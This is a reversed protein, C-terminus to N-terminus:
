AAVLAGLGRLDGRLLDREVSRLDAGSQVARTFDRATRPPGVYVAGVIVGQRLIIRWWAADDPLATYEEDGPEAVVRGYSRLDIGDCKLQMVIRPSQYPVPEGMIAAVATAAQAVGVPWLGGPGGPAQAVDGIAYIDPDSSRMFKDVKVGRGIELGATSALHTNASVGLCAVFLDARVRPGHSLWAARMVGDAGDWRDVNVNTVVRIGIGELYAALRASGEHDLQGNMLRDGRQQITVQLGLHHLADAAEVGLVGGGIVLARRAGTEQVFGRLAQGDEASRLVFANRHELFDPTPVAGRAGTALILKDYELVEGTALQVTHAAPDVTRAVTNRWVEVRNETFWADTMLHLGDMGTRGYILRGIAMRNYFHLSENTVVQIDVSPSSRRLQEAASMGAVGNGVIVVRKIGVREALDITAVAAVKRTGEGASTPDRDITVPGKVTCMCALRAKGELGLRRLTAAEDDSIPSLNQAGECIVVPDAGCMGARCGFNIKLGAREIADLLTAGKAVPFAVGSERDMVEPGGAVTKAGTAAPAAPAHSASKFVGESVLGSGLLAVGAVVGLYHWADRVADPLPADLLWGVTSVITPGSFWYFGGIAVAAFVLAVHFPGVPLFSTLLQYLGASACCAALIIVLHLPEGYAPSPGQMFYGLILGPLLGYFLQRQAAYRPDADDMDAFAAGRPNFDYCNKQCGLCPACYGNRVVVLPALGYVRQIPGLPCFTGCWGSRGKLMLGGVFAVVLSLIILGATALGSSNLLPARLVVAGVFMVVAMAFAMSRLTAPMEGGRTFGGARPLQNLFAMPCVQRWLGPTVVLVVPLAPVILGWWLRLGFAPMAVLLAALGLTGVLVLLRLGIWFWTPLLPTRKTYNAFFRAPDIALV